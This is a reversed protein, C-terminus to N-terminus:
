FLIFLSTRAEVIKATRAISPANGTTKAEWELGKLPLKEPLKVKVDAVVAVMVLVPSKSCRPFVVNALVAVPVPEDAAQSPPNIAVSCSVKM